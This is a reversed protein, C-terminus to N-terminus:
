AEKKDSISSEIWIPNVVIRNLNNLDISVFDSFGDKNQLYYLVRELRNYKGPYDEFGLKIAKTSNFAYLTVGMERDVHIRKILRNSLVSEPNEGLKLVKMVADFCNSHLEGSVNIDSIELGSIVPYNIAPYGVIFDSVNLEKFIEGKTNIIFKKGLDIIAIAEQEKIKINLEGPLKRTIEAGAIWPHALLQKRATSLNISLINGKTDSGTQIGAQKIVQDKTLRNAGKIIINNATFYDCQTLLDYGFIFVSSMATIFAFGATIKIFFVLRQMLKSHKIASSNKYYNKQYYNKQYYNKRYYNKRIRKNEM